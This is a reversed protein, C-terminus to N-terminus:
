ESRTASDTVADSASVSERDVGLKGTEARTVDPLDNIMAQLQQINKLVIQQYERQEKNLEGALGGLLITTFQKIATLPSRLEHSVHSLFEDKFRIQDKGSQEMAEEARKRETIDVNVGIVRSVKDNGDMVAREVASIDRVCGDGRTIRFEESGESKEEIVRRLKTERAVRDGPSVSASWKEYAMQAVPAFGYIEFM